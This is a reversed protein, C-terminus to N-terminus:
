SITEYIVDGPQRGAVGVFVGKNLWDSEPPATEVEHEIYRAV